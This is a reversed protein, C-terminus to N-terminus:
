RYYMSFLCVAQLVITLMLGVWVSYKILKHRKEATQRFEQGKAALDAIQTSLSTEQKKLAETLANQAGDIERLTKDLADQVLKALEMNGKEWSSKINELKLGLIESSTLLEKHKSDMSSALGSLSDKLKENDKLLQDARDGIGAIAESLRASELDGLSKIIIQTQEVMEATKGILATLEGRVDTLTQYAEGLEDSRTKIQQIETLLQQAQNHLNIIDENNIAM